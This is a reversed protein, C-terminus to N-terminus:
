ATNADAIFRERSLRGRAYSATMRARAAERPTSGAESPEDRSVVTRRLCVRRSAAVSSLPQVKWMCGWRSSRRLTFGHVSEMVPRESVTCQLHIPSKGM